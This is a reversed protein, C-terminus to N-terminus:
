EGKPPSPLGLMAAAIAEWKEVLKPVLKSDIGAIEEIRQALDTCLAAAERQSIAGSSVLTFLLQHQFIRQDVMLTSFDKATIM